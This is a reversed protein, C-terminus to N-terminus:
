IDRRVSRIYLIALIYREALSRVKKPMMAPLENWNSLYYGVQIINTKAWLEPHNERGYREAHTKTDSHYVNTYKGCSAKAVDAIGSFVFRHLGPIKAAADFLNKGQQLEYEYAWQSKKQGPKISKTLNPDDLQRWYDTVGFIVTADQFAQELGRVDDLNAAVMEVRNASLKQAHKSSTNRTIGRIRWEPDKLFEKVVSGGQSGTAGVVVILNSPQM